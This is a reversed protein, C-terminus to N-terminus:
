STLGTLVGNPGVEVFVRAGAAYMARIEDAFRVPSVLHEALQAAIAAGDAPHPRASTNSYVPKAPATFEARGLADALAPKAGAILPSHFGCAVAIRQSRVGAAQLKEAARKVGEDTGAVVTQTPSNHNAIWVEPLGALVPQIADASADAALMGGPADVAAERIARGRRYSLRMLDDESLAGAACLAVYEGYSHGGFFDAEIELASLLRFMGLSTAGISSQAVETRRLADRHSAEQEPSFPTPPYILQGLPRELEPALTSEARDLVGRVEAFAMAVQALMDPYQSGQGPFLFAVKPLLSSPHPILSSDLDTKVEDKMRGGEDKWYVGRPDAHSDAKPLAALALDLKEQLDALSAAVVALTAGGAVARGTQWASAALDAPTPKAGAALADRVKKVSDLVAAKDARRWVF